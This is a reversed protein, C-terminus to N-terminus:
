ADRTSGSSAHPRSVTGGGISRAEMWCHGTLVLDTLAVTVGVRRLDGCVDVGDHAFDLPLRTAELPSNPPWDPMSSPDGVASSCGREACDESPSFAATTVPGSEPAAFRTEALGVGAGTRSSMSVSTGTEEGEGSAGEFEGGSELKAFACSFVGAAGEAAFSISGGGTCVSCAAALEGFTKWAMAGCGVTAAGCGGVGTGGLGM